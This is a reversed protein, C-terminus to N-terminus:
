DNILTDKQKQLFSLNSYDKRMFQSFAESAPLLTLWAEVSLCPMYMNKKIPLKKFYKIDLNQSILKLNELGILLPSVNCWENDIFVKARLYNDIGLFVVIFNDEYYEDKYKSLYLLKSAKLTNDLSLGYYLDTCVLKDRNINLDNYIIKIKKNIIKISNGFEDFWERYVSLKGNKNFIYENPKLRCSKIIFDLEDIETYSKVLRIHKDLKAYLHDISPSKM